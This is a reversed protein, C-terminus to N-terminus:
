VICAMEDIILISIGVELALAINEKSRRNDLFGLGVM